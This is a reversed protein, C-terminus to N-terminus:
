CSRGRPIQLGRITREVDALRCAERWEPWDPQFYNSGLVALLRDFPWDDLDLQLLAMLARLAPSRDLTQGSEFSWPSALGASFRTWWGAPIKRRASSSPSRARGRRAMSWCGSSEAAIMEIEGVQRAAALIEINIPSPPPPLPAPSASPGREGQSLTLTLSSPFHMPDSEEDKGEGEAGSGNPSPLCLNEWTERGEGGTGWGRDGEKRRRPNEFLTRELHAIAPWDSNPRPPMQEVVMGSHRRRLEDLTKLPKVFLDSRRPEAELPLTLIM